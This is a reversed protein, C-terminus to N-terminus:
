KSSQGSAPVTCDAWSSMRSSSNRTWNLFRPQAFPCPRWTPKEPSILLQGIAVLGTAMALGVFNTAVAYGVFGLGMLLLAGSVQVLPGARRTTWRVLPVQLGMALAAQIAFLLGIAEPGVLRAALLPVTITPQSSLFYFGLLLGPTLYALSARSPPDFM